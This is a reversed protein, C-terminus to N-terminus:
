TSPKTGDWTALMARNDDSGSIFVTDLSESYIVFRDNNKWKYYIVDLVQNTAIGREDRSLFALMYCFVSGLFSYASNSPLGLKRRSMISSISVMPSRKGVSFCLNLCDLVALM